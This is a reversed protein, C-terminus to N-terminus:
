MPAQPSLTGGMRQAVPELIICAAFPREVGGRNRRDTAAEKQSELKSILRSRGEPLKQDVLVWTISQTM